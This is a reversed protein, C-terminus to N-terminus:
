KLEFSIGHIEYDMLDKAIKGSHSVSWYFATSCNSLRGFNRRGRYAIKLIIGGKM